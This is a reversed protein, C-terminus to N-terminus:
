RFLSGKRTLSKVLTPSPLGTGMCPPIPTPLFIQHLHTHICTHTQLITNLTCFENSAAQMQSSTLEYNFQFQAACEGNLYLSFGFEARIRKRVRSVQLVQELMRKIITLFIKYHIFFEEEQELLTFEYLCFYSGHKWWHPSQVSLVNDAGLPCLDELLPPRLDCRGVGPRTLSDPSFCYPTNQERTRLTHFHPKGLLIRLQQQQM